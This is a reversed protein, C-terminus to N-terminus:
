LHRRPNEQSRTRTVAPGRLTPACDRNHYVQPAAPRTESRSFEALRRLSDKTDRCLGILPRAGPAVAAELIVPLAAPIGTRAPAIPVPELSAYDRNLIEEGLALIDVAFRAAKRTRCRPARRGAWVPPRLHDLFGARRSPQPPPHVPLITMALSDRVDEATVEHRGSKYDIIELAGDAHRDIRDVRGSLKFPGM